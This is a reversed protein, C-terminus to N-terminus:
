NKSADSILLSAGMRIRIIVFHRKIHASFDYFQGSDYYSFCFNVWRIKIFSDSPAIISFRAFWCSWFAMLDSGNWWLRWIYTRLTPLLLEVSACSFCSNSCIRAIKFTNRSLDTVWFSRRSTSRSSWNIKPSKWTM